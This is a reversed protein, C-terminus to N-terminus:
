RQCFNESYSLFASYDFNPAMHSEYLSDQNRYPDETLLTDLTNENGNSMQM